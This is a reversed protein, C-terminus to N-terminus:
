VASGYDEVCRLEFISGNNKVSLRVMIVNGDSDDGVTIYNQNGVEQVPSTCQMKVDKDTGLIKQVTKREKDLVFGDNLVGTKYNYGGYVAITHDDLIAAAPYMRRTLPTPEHVKQWRHGESVRLSEISGTGYGGLVYIYEGLSVSAHCARGDNLPPAKRWENKAIDFYDVKRTADDWGGSLYVRKDQYVVLTFGKAKRGLSQLKELQPRKSCLGDLKFIDM